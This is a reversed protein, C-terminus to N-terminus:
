AGSSIWARASVSVMPDALRAIKRGNEELLRGNSKIRKEITM